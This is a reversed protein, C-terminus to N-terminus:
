DVILDVLSGLAAEAEAADRASPEGSRNASTTAVIGGAADIIALAAPHAPARVGLTPLQGEEPSLRLLILSLGGPWFRSALREARQDVRCYARVDDLSRVLW